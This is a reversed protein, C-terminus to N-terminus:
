DGCYSALWDVTRASDHLALRNLEYVLIVLVNKSQYHILNLQIPKALSRQNQAFQVPRTTNRM